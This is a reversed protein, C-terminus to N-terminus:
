LERDLDMLMNSFKESENSIMNFQEQLDILEEEEHSTDEGSHTSIEQRKAQMRESCASMAANVINLNEVIEERTM